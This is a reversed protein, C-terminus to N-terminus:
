RAGDVVPGAILARNAEGAVAQVIVVNQEIAHICGADQVLRLLFIHPQRDGYIGYGFELGV